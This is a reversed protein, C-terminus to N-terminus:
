GPEFALGVLVAEADEAVLYIVLYSELVTAAAELGKQPQLELLALTMAVALNQVGLLALSMTTWVACVAAVVVPM